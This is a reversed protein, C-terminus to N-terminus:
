YNAIMDTNQHLPKNKNQKDEIQIDQQHANNSCFGSGINAM